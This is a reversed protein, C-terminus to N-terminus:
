KKKKSIVVFLILAIIIAGGGIIPLYNNWGEGGTLIIDSDLEVTHITKNTEKTPTTFDDKGPKGHDTEFSDYFAVNEIFVGSQTNQNVEVAFEVTRTEGVALDYLVFQVEKNTGNVKKIGVKDTDKSIKASGNVYTTNTPIMDSINVYNAVDEGNNTVTLTYVIKGGHPVVTNTEPDSSKVVTVNPQLLYHYVDNTPTTLLDSNFNANKNTDLNNNKIIKKDNEKFVNLARYNATNVIETESCEKNVKVVFKLTIEDGAVLNKVIWKARTEDESYYTDVSLNPSKKGGDYGSFSKFTTGTPIIDGVLLHSQVMKGTNKFILSYEIEDTRHVSSGSIPNSTKKGEIIPEEDEIDPIEVINHTTKNTEDTPVNKITGHVGPDDELLQYRAVNIISKDATISDSVKVTFQVTRSEGVKLDKIVWEVYNGSPVYVGEDSIHGGDYIAFEPVTDRIHVYKATDNGTNTVKVYYTIDQGKTVVTGSAPNSSKEANVQLIQDLKHIVHNTEDTPKNKTQGATSPKPTASGSTTTQYSSYKAVNDITKLSSPINNNVDVQFSVQMKKGKAVNVGICEIYPTGNNTVYACASSSGAYGKDIDKGNITVSIQNAVEQSVGGTWKISKLLNAIDTGTINAYENATFTLTNGNSSVSWKRSDASHSATLGSPYSVVVNTAKGGYVEASVNELHYGTTKIEDWGAQTEVKENYYATVNGGVHYHRSNTNTNVKYYRYKTGNNSSFSFEQETHKSVEDWDDQNAGVGIAKGYQITQWNQGDYSGYLTGEVWHNYGRCFLCAYGSLSWAIRTIDHGSALAHSYKDGWNSSADIDSSFNWPDSKERYEYVPPHYITTTDKVVTYSRTASFRDWVKEQKFEGVDGSLKLSGDVFTTGTPIDDTVRVYNAPVEGKNSLDITYTIRQGKNVRSGHVPNASKVAEIVTGVLKHETKNSMFGDNIISNDKSNDDKNQKEAFNNYRAYNIINKVNAGEGEATVKVTFTLKAIGNPKLEDIVYKTYNGVSNYVAHYNNKTDNDISVFETYTPIQDIVVINHVTNKGTNKVLLTYTINDKTTVFSGSEPNSTKVVEYKVIPAESNWNKIIGESVNNVKADFTFYGETEAPVTINWTLTNGNVNPTVNTPNGVYTLSSPLDDVITKTVEINRNNRYDIRYTIIDGTKVEVNGENERAIPYGNVAIIHKEPNWAPVYWVTFEENGEKKVGAIPTSESESKYFDYGNVTPSDVSYNSGVKFRNSYDPHVTKESGWEKYHVTLQPYDYYVNITVDHNPMTGSVVADNISKDAITYGNVNPSTVSYSEGFKRTSTHQTAVVKGDNVDLYNITLKYSDLEAMKIIAGADRSDVVIGLEWDKNPPYSWNLGKGDVYEANKIYTENIYSTGGAGTGGRIQLSNDDGALGGMYGAGGGGSSSNNSSNYAQGLGFKYGSTPAVPGSSVGGTTTRGGNGGISTVCSNHVCYYPTDLEAAYFDEAGGGGGAVMLIKDKDNEYNVLEGNGSVRDLYIAGLGGGGSRFGYKQGWGIGGGGYTGRSNMGNRYGLSLYLKQGKDLHIKGKVTGAQGGIGSTVEPNPAYSVTWGGTDSDGDAGWLEIDYTGSEPAEFIQYNNGKASFNWTDGVSANPTGTTNNAIPMIGDEPSDVVNSPTPVHSYKASWNVFAAQEVTYGAEDGNEVVTQTIVGNYAFGIVAKGTTGKSFDEYAALIESSAYDAYALKALANIDGDATVKTISIEASGSLAELVKEYAKITRQYLEDSDNGMLFMLTKGDKIESALDDISGEEFHNDYKVEEKPTDISEKKIESVEFTYSEEVLKEDNEDFAGVQVKYNDNETVDFALSTDSTEKENVKIKGEEAKVAFEDANILDVYSADEKNYTVVLTAKSYDEAYNIKYTFPNEETTETEDAKESVEEKVEEQVEVTKNEEDSGDEAIVPLPLNLSTLCMLITLACNLLKKIRM